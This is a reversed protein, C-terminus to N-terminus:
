APPPSYHSIGSDKELERVSSFKSELGFLSSLDAYKVAKVASIVNKNCVTVTPFKTEQQSQVSVVLYPEQNKYEDVLNLSTKLM